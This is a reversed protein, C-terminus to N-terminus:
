RHFTVNEDLEARGPNTKESQDTSVPHGFSIGFLMKMHQPIDLIRRVTDAYLGLATQPIGAYGRATLSLLLTQAYMGLDGAVRVDDGFHPMFLLAAHPAGYFNFNRRIFDLRGQSDDRAIGLTTYLSNGMGSIRDGYIGTYQTYNFPFDPTLNNNNFDDLLAKALEDRKKGSVIHIQWPQTNANSPSWRADDLVTNIEEDNLPTPLFDRVARRKRVADSFSLDTM